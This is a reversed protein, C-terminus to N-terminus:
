CYRFTMLYFVIILFQYLIFKVFWRNDRGESFTRFNTANTSKFRITARTGIIPSYEDEGTNFTEIELAPADGILDVYSFTDGNDVDFDNDRIEILVEAGERNTFNIRYWNRIM